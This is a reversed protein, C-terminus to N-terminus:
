PMVFQDCQRQASRGPVKAWVPKWRGETEILALQFAKVGDATATEPSRKLFAAFRTCSSIHSRQSQRGPNRARMDDIM